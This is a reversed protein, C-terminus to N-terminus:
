EIVSKSLELASMGAQIASSCSQWVQMRQSEADTDNSAKRRNVTRRSEKLGHNIKTIKIGHYDDYTNVIPLVDHFLYM